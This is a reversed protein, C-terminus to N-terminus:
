DGEKIKKDILSDLAKSDTPTINVQKKDNEILTKLLEAVDKDSGGEEEKNALKSSYDLIAKKIAVRDKRLGQRQTQLQVANTIHEILYHQVGKNTGLSPGMLKQIEEDIIKSYDKSKSLEEEIANLDEEFYKEISPDIIKDKEEM